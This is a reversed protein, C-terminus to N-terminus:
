REAGKAITQALQRVVAPHANGLEVLVTQNAGCPEDIGLSPLTINATCLARRLDKLAEEAVAWPDGADPMTLPPPGLVEILRHVVDDRVPEVDVYARGGIPAAAGVPLYFGRALLALHLEEALQAGIRRAESHTDM